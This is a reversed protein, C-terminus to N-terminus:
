PVQGLRNILLRLDALRVTATTKFLPFRYKLGDWAILPEEFSTCLPCLGVELYVNISGSFFTLVLDSGINLTIDLAAPNSASPGIGLEARLPLQVAVITLIGKIGAAAVLADVGAWAQAQIWAFPMLTGTVGSRELQCGGSMVTKKGAELGYDIGISGVLAGGITIPVFGIVITYEQEFFTQNKQKTDRLVTTEGIPVNQMGSLLEVGLVKASLSATTDAVGATANFISVKAGLLTADIKMNGDIRQKITCTNPNGVDAAEFSLGYGFEAGFLKNGLKSSDGVERKLRVKTSKKDLLPGLYEAVVELYADMDQYYRELAPGNATYDAQASFSRGTDPNTFSLTKNQLETFSEVYERCKQFAAEREDTFHGLVSRAFRRPSWDCPAPGTTNTLDLCGAQRAKVLEEEIVGDLAALKYSACIIPNGTCAANVQNLLGPKLSLATVGAPTNSFTVLGSAAPHNILVNSAVGGLSVDRIDVGQQAASSLSVPNPNWVPDLWWQQSLQQSGAVPVKGTAGPDLLSLLTQQLREREALLALFEDQKRDWDYLVEDLVGANRAAMDRHWAWSETYFARGGEILSTLTTDNFDVGGYNLRDRGVNVLKGLRIIVNQSAPVYIVRDDEGSLFTIRTNGRPPPVTFYQNKPMPSSAFPLTGFPRGDRGELNPNTLHRTGIAWRPLPFEVAYATDFVRRHDDFGGFRLRDEFVTYDYFREHVYESCSMVKNGNAEWEQRTNFLQLRRAAALDSQKPLLAADRFAEGAAFSNLGTFSFGERDVPVARAKKTPVTPLKPLQNVRSLPPVVVDKEPYRTAEAAAKQEFLLNCASRSDTRAQERFHIDCRTVPAACQEWTPPPCSAPNFGM